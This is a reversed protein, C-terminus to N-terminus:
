PSCLVMEAMGCSFFIGGVWAIGWVGEELVFKGHLFKGGTEDEWCLPSGPCMCKTSLSLVTTAPSIIQTVLGIVNYQKCPRNEM